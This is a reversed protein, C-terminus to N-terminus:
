YVVSEPSRDLTKKAGSLEFAGRKKRVAESIYWRGGVTDLVKKIKKASKASLKAFPRM